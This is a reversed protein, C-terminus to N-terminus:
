ELAATRKELLSELFASCLKTLPPLNHSSGSFITEWPKESPVSPAWLDQNRKLKFEPLEGYISAYGFQGEEHTLRDGQHFKSLEHVEKGYPDFLVYEHDGNVYALLTQPAKGDSINEYTFSPNAKLFALAGGKAKRASWSAVPVPDVANFLLIVGDRGQFTTGNAEKCNSSEPLLALAAFSSTDVACAVAEVHLLYSWSISLKSMNWVSLQPKSGWSTAVLYESSGVFSMNMIPTLTEGIVAVLVNRDPDWLTIVTEAAVALVSGDASFAAATMAKKKYSGVAHCSWGSSQLDKQQLEDNCIWVKFDGGYSSSVAARRNPHFAVASIGVSCKLYKENLEETILCPGCRHPEYVITSLTFEKNQTGSVWFKLCVLSGIGEEALKVDVTSMLSGDQSLAVLTVVVTVDDGPQHNRECVQVQFPVDLLKVLESIGRDDLLSYFHICYNEARLAVLGGDHNFAIDRCIGKYEEPLPCPLSSLSPDPSETFYLLPSGIRPLFKKKGTDLQWVVLVGEKGGSYLYAGDSSFILVSVESPHWHWTTCLDADDNDRVGPREEENNMLNLNMKNDNTAFTRDGFGRWILIRGTVDGAAVIRQTPHFALVTLKKTHHLTIKRMVVREAEVDPVKWILLKRQKRIGFYKGSSSITIVQPEKMEALTVGGALRSETLNCKCIRGNMTNPRPEKKHSKTTERTDEVSLYAFLKSPKVDSQAPQRLLSPIVMSFIPFKVDITKLLEPTSFDWYKITEDLSATWCYSLIKTAPTSAPVVIVTTVPATHGELSSIQLGTSTSFISVTNSTCVLLRKVDNSFAPPSSVYSRGGRIM